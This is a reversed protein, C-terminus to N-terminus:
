FWKEFMAWIPNPNDNTQSDDIAMVVSNVIIVSISINDFLSTSIIQFCGLRVMLLFKLVSKRVKLM